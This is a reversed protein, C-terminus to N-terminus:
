SNSSGVEATAEALGTMGIKNLLIWLKDVTASSDLSFGRLFDEIMEESRAASDLRGLVSIALEWGRRTTQQAEFRNVAWLSRAYVILTQDKVGDTKSPSSNLGLVDLDEQNLSGMAILDQPKAQPLWGAMSAVEAVASSVPGSWARLFGIVAEINGEFLSALGVEVQDLTNIKFGKEQTESTATALSKRLKRLYLEADSLEPVQQSSQAARRELKGDDWWALLGISAECWDEACEIIAAADGIMFNYMTVLRQYIYWPVRSEAKRATQSYSGYRSANSLISENPIGDKGEAFTKLQQLSQSARLRFL